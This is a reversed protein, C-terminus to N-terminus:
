IVLLARVPRRAGRGDAAAAVELLGELPRRPAAPAPPSAASSSSRGACAGPRSGAAAAAPITRITWASRSSGEFGLRCAERFVASGGGRWHQTRRVPGDAPLIRGLAAKRVRLTDRSLDRGDLEFADFVFYVLEGLRNQLAQFSTRDDPLLAAIEGDLFASRVPLKAAAAAIAAFDRTWDNGKRSWLRAQGRAIECGIRYGDYKIEHLWEAGEPPASVLTALQPRYM